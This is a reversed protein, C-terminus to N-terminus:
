REACIEDSVIPHSEEYTAIPHEGLELFAAITVPLTIHGLSIRVQQHRVHLHRNSTPLVLSPPAGHAGPPSLVMAPLLDFRSTGRSLRVLSLEDFPQGALAPDHVKITMAHDDDAFTTITRPASPTTSGSTGQDFFYRTQPSAPNTWAQVGASATINRQTSGLALHLVAQTAARQPAYFSVTTTWTGTAADFSTTVSQISRAAVGPTGLPPLGQLATEVGSLTAASASAPLVISGALLAVVVTRKVM